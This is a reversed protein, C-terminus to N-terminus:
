RHYDVVQLPENQVEVEVTGEVRVLPVRQLLERRVSAPKANRVSQFTPPPPPMRLLILIQTVLIAALLSVVVWNKTTVRNPPVAYASPRSM